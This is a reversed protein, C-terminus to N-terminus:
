SARRNTQLRLIALRQRLNAHKVLHEKRLGLPKARSKHSDLAGSRNNKVQSFNPSNPVARLYQSFVEGLYPPYFNPSNPSPATTGTNKGLNEWTEWTRWPCSPLHKSGTLIPTGLDGLNEWTIKLM